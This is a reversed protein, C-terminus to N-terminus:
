NKASLAQFTDIYKAINKQLTKRQRDNLLQCVQVIFEDSASEFSSIIHQDESNRTEEPALLWMSLHEAVVEEGKHEKLLAIMQAQNVARQNIYASDALPLERSLERVKDLQKDTFDGVLSEFFDIAKEARKKYREETGEGLEKVKKENEKALSKVLNEIQVPTVTSLLSAAPQITPQLTKIYLKRLELRYRTVDAKKLEEGSQGQRQLSQLFFVYEPLIKKRHMDMFFDVERAIIEKQDDDFPAYSNISYRLYIDAYNYGISLLDCGSLTLLLLSIVIHLRSTKM